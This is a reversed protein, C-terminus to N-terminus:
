TILSSLDKGKILLTNSDSSKENGCLAGSGFTISQLKPLDSKNTIWNDESQLVISCCNWFACQGMLLTTLYPMNSLNFSAVGWRGVGGQIVLSKISSSIQKVQNVTSVWFVSPDLSLIRKSPIAYSHLTILYELDADENNDMM